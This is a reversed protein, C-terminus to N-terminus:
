IHVRCGCKSKSRCVCEPFTVLYLCSERMLYPHLEVYRKDLYALLAANALFTPSSVTTSKHREILEWFRPVYSADRSPHGGFRSVVTTSTM